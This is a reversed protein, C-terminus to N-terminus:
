GRYGLDIQCTVSVMVTVTVAVMVMVTVMVMVMVVTVMIITVTLMMMFIIWNEFYLYIEFLKQVLFTRRWQERRVSM